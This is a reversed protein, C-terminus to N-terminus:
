EGGLEFSYFNRLSNELKAIEKKLALLTSLKGNYVEAMKHQRDIDLKVIPIETLDKANLTIIAVGKQIAKMALQGDPSDLYIKLFTPDLKEANPRVIIMGGTVLIKEEPEIDVVAIKIKSSKSTIVVDGKQVAFKDFKTDKYDINQLSAWDVFGDNIDGSTLIKYGTKKKTFMKEFNRATYQAGPFASAVDGLRIVNKGEVPKALARSPTLNRCAVAEEITLSNKGEDYAHAIEEVALESPYRLREKGLTGDVLKVRSNGKSFVLVCLRVGLGDLAGSPLEIVGELLGEEIIHDRYEKDADNYLAKTMALAVVRRPNARLIRDIFAWEASNRGSFFIGKYKSDLDNEMGTLRLGFPPCLYGLDFEGLEDYLANGQETEPHLANVWLLSMAMNCLNVDDRNLEIGKAAKLCEGKKILADYACALFGGRGSGADLLTDGNKADLLHIVLSCLTENTSLPLFRPSEFKGSIAMLVLERMELYNLTDLYARFSPVLKPSYRESMSQAVVALEKSETGPCFLPKELAYLYANAVIFESAHDFIPGIFKRISKEVSMRYDM